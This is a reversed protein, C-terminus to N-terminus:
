QVRSCFLLEGSVSGLTSGAARPRTNMTSVLSRQNGLLKKRSTLEFGSVRFEFRKGGKERYSTGQERGGWM